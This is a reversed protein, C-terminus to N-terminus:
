KLEETKDMEFVTMDGDETYDEMHLTGQKDELEALFTPLVMIKEELNTNDGLDVRVGDFYLLIEMDSQFYIKDVILEYKDLLNTINMISGFILDDEVPIKEGLMVHEFSLGAIQPVGVTKVNSTEVIYGDRDFYMYSDMFEIYGALAKEYVTIKITDPALVTVDMVDVFPIDEVGKNSYKMSLYLSNNALPGDMVIEQIEEQTYHVNGEVYVTKISYTSIFYYFVGLVAAILLLIILVGGWRRKRKKYM